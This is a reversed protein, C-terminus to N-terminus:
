GHGRAAPRRPTRSPSGRSSTRGAPCGSGAWRAHAPQGEGRELPQRGPQTPSEGAAVADATRARASPSSPFGTSTAAPQDTGHRAHDHVRHHHTTGADPGTRQPHCARSSRQARRTTSAAAMRGPSSTRSMPAPVPASVRGSTSAPARLSRPRAADPGPRCAGAAIRPLPAARGAPGPRGVPQTRTRRGATRRMDARAASWPRPELRRVQDHRGTRPWPTDLEGACSAPDAAHRHADSLGGRTPVAGGVPRRLHGPGAIPLLGAAALPDTTSM